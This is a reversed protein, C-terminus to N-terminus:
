LSKTPFVVRALLGGGPADNLEIRAAHHEAIAKVIALGLGSGGEDGGHRRYFRAFVREHEAAPIGPGTDAVELVAEGERRQVRVDVRGGHPTYRVANDALNRILVYLADPDGRFTAEEAVALGLDVGRAEALPAVDAVAQRATEDLRVPVLPRESADPDSRALTLLQDVLHSAREIGATLQARAGRRAEPDPARDLLQIQLRLATLPSRLEHAADAVFARQVDLAASLRRLLDNLARVLPLIEEPLQEEPLPTLLTPERARVQRTVLSVPRLAREAGFWLAAALLPLLVLVPLLTRFAHMRALERRVSKPQAVQITRGRVQVSFVRWDGSETRVDAFGLTAREPLDSYPHSLYVRAGGANWIQVVIEYSEDPGALEQVIGQDRLSLALQRLQYDFLEDADVLASRYVGWGAAIAVLTVCGLFWSLLRIRISKM